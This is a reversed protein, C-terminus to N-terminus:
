CQFCEFLRRLLGLHHRVKWSLYKAKVRREIRLNPPFDEEQARRVALVELPHVRNDRLEQWPTDFIRVRHEEYADTLVKKQEASLDTRAALQEPAEARKLAQSAAVISKPLARGLKAPKVLAPTRLLPKPVGKIIPILVQVSPTARM